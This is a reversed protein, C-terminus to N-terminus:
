NFLLYESKLSNRAQTLRDITIGNEMGDLRSIMIDIARITASKLENAGVDQGRAAKILPSFEFTGGIKQLLDFQEAVKTELNQLKTIVNEGTRKIQQENTQMSKISTNTTYNIKNVSAITLTEMSTTFRELGFKHIDAMRAIVTRCDNLREKLDGEENKLNQVKASLSNYANKIRGYQLL